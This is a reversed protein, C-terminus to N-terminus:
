AKTSSARGSRTRVILWCFPISLVFFAASQMLSLPPREPFRGFLHGLVIIGSSFLMLFPAARLAFRHCAPVASWLRALQHRVEPLEIQADSVPAQRVINKRRRELRLGMPTAVTLAVGICALLLPADLDGSLWSLIALM